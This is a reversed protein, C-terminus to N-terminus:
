NAPVNEPSEGTKEDGTLIGGLNAPADVNREPM